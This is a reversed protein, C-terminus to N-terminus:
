SSIQGPKQEEDIERDVSVNENEKIECLEERKEEDHCM